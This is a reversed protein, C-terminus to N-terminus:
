ITRIDIDNENKNINEFIFHGVKESIEAFRDATRQTYLKANFILLYMAGNKGISLRPYITTVFENCKENVDTHCGSVVECPINELVYNQRFINDIDMIGGIRNKSLDFPCRGLNIRNNLQTKLSEKFDKFNIKGDKFDYKFPVEQLHYGINYMEKKWNRGAFTIFMEQINKQYNSFIYQTLLINMALFINYKSASEFCSSLKEQLNEFNLIKFIKETNKSNKIEPDVDEDFEIVYNTNNDYNKYYYNDILSDSKEDNYKKLYYFYYDFPLEKDLYARSLTDWFVNGSWGDFVGHYIDVILYLSTESLLITFYVQQSNFPEFIHLNEQISQNIDSDKIDKIAIEPEIEPCYKLFVEENKKILRSQLCPHNKITKILAEKFKDIDIYEKNIRRVQFCNKGVALLPLNIYSCISDYPKLYLKRTELELDKQNEVEVNQNLLENKGPFEFERM